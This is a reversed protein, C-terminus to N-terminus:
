FVAKFGMKNKMSQSGMGLGPNLDGAPFPNASIHHKLALKKMTGKGDVILYYSLM